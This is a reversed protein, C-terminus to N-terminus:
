CDRSTTTCKSLVPDGVLHLGQLGDTLEFLLNFLTLVVALFLQLDAIDFLGSEHSELLPLAFVEQVGHLLSLLAGKFVM